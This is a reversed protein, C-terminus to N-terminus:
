EFYMKNKALKYSWPLNSNKWGNVKRHGKSPGSKAKDGEFGDIITYVNKYGLKNLLNAAKASRSGSRCMLIVKSDKKLDKSKLTEAFVISFNSNPAMDFKKKKENWSDVDQVMYPINADVMNTMGVFEVEARTRVDVFLVTNNENKVIKYADKATLYKGQPTLKKKPLKNADIGAFAITSFLSILTLLILSKKM